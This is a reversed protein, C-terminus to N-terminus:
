ESDEGMIQTRTIPTDKYIFERLNECRICFLLLNNGFKAFEFYPDRVVGRQISNMSNASISTLYNAVMTNRLIEQFPFGTDTSTEEFSSRSLVNNVVLTNYERTYINSM